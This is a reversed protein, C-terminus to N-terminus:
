VNSRQRILQVRPSLAETDESTQAGKCLSRCSINYHIGPFKEMLTSFDISFKNKIALQFKVFFKNIYLDSLSIVNKSKEEESFIENLVFEVDEKTPFLSNDYHSSFYELLTGKIEPRSIELEGDDRNVIQKGGIRYLGCPIGADYIAWNKDNQYREGTNHTRMNYHGTNYNTRLVREDAQILIPSNNSFDELLRLSENDFTTDIGCVSKTIYTCNSPVIKEQMLECNHGMMIYISTDSNFPITQRTLLITRGPCISNEIPSGDENFLCADVNPFPSLDAGSKQYKLNLYKNKYKIYKQEYNM